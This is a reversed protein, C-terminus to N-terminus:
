RDRIILHYGFQTEVIGSMQGIALSFATDEFASVMQGRRFEGLDGGRNGSPCDSYELAADSFGIEGSIIMENIEMIKALADEKSISVDSQTASGAYSILIHRASVTVPPGQSFGTAVVTLLIVLIALLNKM